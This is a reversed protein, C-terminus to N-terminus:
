NLIVDYHRAEEKVMEVVAPVAGAVPNSLSLSWEVQGPEVGILVIEPLDARHLLTLLRLLDEGHMSDVCTRGAEEHFPIRYITGPRAQVQVADLVIVQEALEMEPLAAQIASGVPRVAMDARGVAGQLLQAAHVGVGRDGLLINGLGIVLTRM